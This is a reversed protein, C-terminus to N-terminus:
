KELILDAMVSSWQERGFLLIPRPLGYYALARLRKGKLEKPYVIEPVEHNFHHTFSSNYSVVHIVYIAKNEPELVSCIKCCM